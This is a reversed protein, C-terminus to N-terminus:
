LGLLRSLFGKHRNLAEVEHLIKSFPISPRVMFVGVNTDGFFMADSQFPNEGKKWSALSLSIGTKAIHIVGQYMSRRYKVELADGTETDVIVFGKDSIKCNM